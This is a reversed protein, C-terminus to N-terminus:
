VRMNMMLVDIHYLFQLYSSYHLLLHRGASLNIACDSFYRMFKNRNAICLLDQYWLIHNWPGFVCKLCEIWKPYRYIGQFQIYQEMIDITFSPWIVVNKSFYINLYQMVDNTKTCFLKTAILMDKNQGYSNKITNSEGITGNFFKLIIIAFLSWLVSNKRFYRMGPCM